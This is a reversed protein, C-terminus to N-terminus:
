EVAEGPGAGWRELEGSVPAVNYTACGLQLNEM